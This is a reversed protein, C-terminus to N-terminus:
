EADYVPLKKGSYDLPYDANFKEFYETHGPNSRTVGELMVFFYLVAVVIVVATAKMLLHFTQSYEALLADKNYHLKPAAKKATTKSTTAM